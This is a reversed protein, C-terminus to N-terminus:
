GAVTGIGRRGTQSTFGRMKEKKVGNCGILVIGTLRRTAKSRQTFKKRLGEEGSVIKIIALKSIVRVASHQFVFVFVFVM